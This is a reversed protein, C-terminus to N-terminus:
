VKSDIVNQYLEFVNSCYFCVFIYKYLSSVKLEHATENQRGGMFQMAGYTGGAGLLLFLVAAIIMPLKGRNGVQIEEEGEAPKAAEDAM